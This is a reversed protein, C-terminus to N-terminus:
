VTSSPAPGAFGAEADAAAFWASAPTNWLGCITLDEPVSFMKGLLYVTVMKM